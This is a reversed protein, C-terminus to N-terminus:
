LIIQSYERLQVKWWHNVIKEIYLKQVGRWLEMTIEGPAWSNSVPQKIKLLDLRLWQESVHCRRFSPALHTAMDPSVGWVDGKWWFLLERGPGRVYTRKYRKGSSPGQSDSAFPFLWDHMMKWICGFLILKLLSSLFQHQTVLSCHKGCFLPCNESRVKGSHNIITAWEGKTFASEESLDQFIVSM